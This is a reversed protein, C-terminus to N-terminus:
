YRAKYSKRIVFLTIGTFLAINGCLTEYLPSLLNFVLFILTILFFVMSIWFRRKYVRKWKEIKYNYEKFKQENLILLHNLENNYSKESVLIKLFSLYINTSVNRFLDMKDTKIDKIKSIGFKSLEKYDINYDLVVDWKKIERMCLDVVNNNLLFPAVRNLEYIDKNLVSNILILDNNEPDALLAKFLTKNLNNYKKFKLEFLVQNYLKSNNVKTKRPKSQMIKSGCFECYLINRNDIDLNAGCNPCDIKNLAM